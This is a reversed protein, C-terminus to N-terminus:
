WFFGRLRTSLKHQLNRHDNGYGLVRTCYVCTIMLYQQQSSKTEILTAISLVVTVIVIRHSFNSNCDNNNYFGVDQVFSFFLAAKTVPPQTIRCFECRPM